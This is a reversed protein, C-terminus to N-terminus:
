KVIVTGVMDPHLTCFYAYKGPKTFTVSFKDQTDLAASHFQKNDSSDAVSHPDQDLNVWTVQSGVAVSVTQQSFAHNQIDVETNSAWAPSLMTTAILTYLTILSNKM